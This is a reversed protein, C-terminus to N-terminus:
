VKKFYNWNTHAESQKHKYQDVVLLVAVKAKFYKVLDSLFLIVEDFTTEGDYFTKLIEQL